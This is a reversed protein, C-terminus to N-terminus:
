KKLDPYYLKLRGATYHRLILKYSEGTKYAIHRLATEVSYSKFEYEHFKSYKKMHSILITRHTPTRLRM